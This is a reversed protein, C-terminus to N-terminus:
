EQRLGEILSTPEDTVKEIIKPSSALYPKSQIQNSGNFRYLYSESLVKMIHVFIRYISSFVEYVAEIKLESFNERMDKIIMDMNQVTKRCHKIIPVHAELKCTVGECKRMFDLEIKNIQMHKEFFDDVLNSYAVEFLAKDFEEQM